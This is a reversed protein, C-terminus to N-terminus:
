FGLSSSIKETLLLTDPIFNDSLIELREFLVKYGELM